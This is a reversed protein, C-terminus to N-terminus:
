DFFMDFTVGIRSRKAVSRFFLDLKTDSIFFIPTNQSLDLITNDIYFADIRPRKASILHLTASLFSLDLTPDTRPRNALILHLLASSFFSLYLAADTRLRKAFIDDIFFLDITANNKNSLDGNTKNYMTRLIM